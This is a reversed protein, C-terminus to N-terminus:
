EVNKSKFPLLEVPDRAKGKRRIEFHLHPGTTRGTMGVRGIIRGSNVRENLRVDIRSLHGYVTQYSGAHAIVVYKGYLSNSGTEAVVGERAAMVETGIPAALDIGNHFRPHGTFPDSRLGFPSSVRGQRLPFRFLIQLFFAREVAHFKEGAFFGFRRSAAAGSEAADARPETDRSLVSVVCPAPRSGRSALMLKELDSLPELPVFLGPTNPIVLRKKEQFVAINPTGNLTALTDYPLNLRAALGLLDEGPKVDYLFFTLVPM